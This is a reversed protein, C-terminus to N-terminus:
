NLYLMSEEEEGSIYEYVKMFGDFKITSGSARLTYNGNKIELINYKIYMYGNPKSHIKEM